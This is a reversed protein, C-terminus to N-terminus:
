KVDSCWFGGARDDWPTAELRMKSVSLGFNAHIIAGEKAGLGRASITLGRTTGDFTFKKNRLKATCQVFGNVTGIMKAM